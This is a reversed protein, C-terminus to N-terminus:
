KEPKLAKFSKLWSPVSSQATSLDHWARQSDKLTTGPSFLDPAGDAFRKTAAVLPDSDALASGTAADINPAVRGVLADRELANTVVGGERLVDSGYAAMGRIADARQWPSTRFVDPTSAAARNASTIPMGAKVLDSTAPSFTDSFGSEPSHETLIHRGWEQHDKTFVGFRETLYNTFKNASAADQAVYARSGDIANQQMEDTTAFREIPHSIFGASQGIVKSAAEEALVDSHILGAFGATLLHDAREVATSNRNFLVHQVANDKGFVIGPPGDIDRMTVNNATRIDTALNRAPVFKYHSQDFGALYEGALGEVKSAAKVVSEPMVDKLLKAATAAANEAAERVAPNKLAAEGLEVALDIKGAM